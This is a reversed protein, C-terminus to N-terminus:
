GVIDSLFLHKQLGKFIKSNIELQVYKPLKNLLKHGIKQPVTFELRHPIRLRDTNTDEGHM